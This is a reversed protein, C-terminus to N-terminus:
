HTSLASLKDMWHKYSARMRQEIEEPSAKGSRLDHIQNQGDLIAGAIISGLKENEYDRFFDLVWPETYDNSM